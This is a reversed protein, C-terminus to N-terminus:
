SVSDWPPRASRSLFAQAETPLVNVKAASDTQVRLDQNTRFAINALHCLTAATVTKRFEACPAQRTRVCEVFNRLHTRLMESTDETKTQKAGYIKWGGRDVILTGQDGHFAVAASRGEIGRDSWQRHEWTLLLNEYEYVATLTHPTESGDESSCVGHATVRKPLGLNLAWVAVDLMHVGWNTLEGGSYDWFWRWHYHFRRVDFPRAPAPGLWLDYDVTPPATLQGAVPLKSRRYSAWAKVLQVNGICGSRVAHIASHFHKGSRQQLGVQVIRNTTEIVGAVREQEAITLTAPKEVYVDKGAQCALVTMPAHWHDPTAIVVAQLTHDDLVRRFDLVCRPVYGQAERVSECAARFVRKDVDCLVPVEVDPMAALTSALLRGRNRVGIVGVRIRQKLGGFRSGSSFGVVGVAVGAANQASKGLFQRRNIERKLFDEVNM